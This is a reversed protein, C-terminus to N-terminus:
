LRCEKGVRREESRPEKKTGSKGELNSKWFAEKGIGIPTVLGIGTVVVRNM